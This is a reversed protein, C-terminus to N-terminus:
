QASRHYAARHIGLFVLFFLVFFDLEANEAGAYRILSLAASVASYMREVPSFFIFIFASFFGM